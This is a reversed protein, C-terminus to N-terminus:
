HGDLQEDFSDALRVFDEQVVDVLIEEKVEPDPTLALKGDPYTFIISDRYGKSNRYYSDTTSLSRPNLDLLCDDFHPLIWFKFSKKLDLTLEWGQSIWDWHKKVDMNWICDWNKQVSYYIILTFKIKNKSLNYKLNDSIIYFSWLNLQKVCRDQPEGHLDCGTGTLSLWLLDCVSGCSIQRETDGPHWGCMSCTHSTVSGGLILTYGPNVTYGPFIAAVSLYGRSSKPRLTQSFGEQQLKRVKKTRRNLFALLFDFFSRPHDSETSWCWNSWGDFLTQGMTIFVVGHGLCVICITGSFFTLLPHVFSM